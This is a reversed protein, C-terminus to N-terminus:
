GEQALLSAGWAGIMRSVVKRPASIGPRIQVITMSLIMVGVALAVVRQVPNEWIILGHLFLSALCLLYIGTTLVPHGLVRCAAGPAVEGKRRRAVLLLVPFIGGLLSIVIVGLFSLPEAFSAKGTLMIWEVLLFVIMVPAASLLFRGRNDLLLRGWRRPLIDVLYSKTPLQERVLNFLPISSHITGMGMGLIAFVSGLVHVIPGIEAALPALVTGSQGVLMQPAIAGNVALTWLCYLATVVVQAAVAGRILSRASPDRQLVVKACNCVSLHGFYALLVIGFILQLISPDFPCGGLFPVNMYHLNAPQLQTLALLSLILILGINIAGSVLASAITASLTKRRLYFLGVLFIVVVWVPAPMRTSDALTTSLGIYYPWLTLACEVILAISFVLSGFRGLYSTVVQSINVNGQRVADSGAVSEAMAAITLVNVVGLVVLIVVGPLPGVGALAIPLALIGAGVTETLTLSFATWFPPLSELWCDLTAGTWRRGQHAVKNAKTHPGFATRIGAVTRYDIDSM